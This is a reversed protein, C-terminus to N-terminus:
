KVGHAQEVSHVIVKAEEFSVFGDWEDAWMRDIQEITLPKRQADKRLAEVEDSMAQLAHRVPESTGNMDMLEQLTYKM